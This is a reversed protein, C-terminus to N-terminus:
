SVHHSKVNLTFETIIGSDYAEGLNTLANKVSSFKLLGLVGDSYTVPVEVM